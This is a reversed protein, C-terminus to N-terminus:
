QEKHNTLYEFKEHLIVGLNAEVDCQTREQILFLPRRKAEAFTRGVYEGVVGISVLQVSSLVLIVTMLSTWGPKTNLYLWSYLTYLLTMFSAALTCMGFLIILRLPKLSFGTIADVSFLLMKKLPYKTTGAIRPQREYSISTQKYGLWAILGRTFRHSESLANYSQLVKKNILRFDGTDRPIDVDGLASLLKYFLRASIIKFKTEGLRHVRKGYVVDFGDVSAKIMEGLLEPPDQLDVDIILVQDGQAEQLGATLAAQHGFNRSLRLGKVRKDRQHLLSIIEWSRDQSGDDVILIEYNTIGASRIAKSMRFYFKELVEEENFGPAVVSLQM